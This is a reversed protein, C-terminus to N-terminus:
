FDRKRTNEREVDTMNGVYGFSKGIYKVRLKGSIGVGKQLFLNACAEERYKRCLTKRLVLLFRSQM